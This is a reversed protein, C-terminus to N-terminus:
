STFYPNNSLSYTIKLTRSPDQDDLEFSIHILDKLHPVISGQLNFSQLTVLRWLECLIPISGLGWDLMAIKASLSWTIRIIKSRSIQCGIVKGYNENFTKYCRVQFIQNMYTRLLIRAASKLYKREIQISGMKSWLHGFFRITKCPM